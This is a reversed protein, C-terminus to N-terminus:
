ITKNLILDLGSSKAFQILRLEAEQGGSYSYVAPHITKVISSTTKIFPTLKQAENGWLLWKIQVSRSLYEVLNTVFTHWIDSHGNTVGIKTTLSKNLFFVGKESEWEKFLRDPSNVNWGGIKIEHLISPISVFSGREQFYIGALIAKLSANTGVWDNLEREFSRGTAHGLKPYPDQGIIVFRIQEVPKSFIKFINEKDPTYNSGISKDIVSLDVEQSEFFDKWTEDVNNLDLNEFNTNELRMM